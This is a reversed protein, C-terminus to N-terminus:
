TGMELIEVKRRGYRDPPRISPRVRTSPTHGASIRLTNRELYTPKQIPMAKCSFIPM